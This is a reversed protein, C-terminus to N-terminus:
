PTAWRLHYPDVTTYDPDLVHLTEMPSREAKRNRFEEVCTKLDNAPRGM